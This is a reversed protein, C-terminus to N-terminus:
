HNSFEAVAKERDEHERQALNIDAAVGLADMRAAILSSLAPITSALLAVILRPIWDPIPTKQPTSMVAIGIFICLLYVIFSFVWRRKLFYMRSELRKRLNIADRSTLATSKILDHSGDLTKWFFGDILTFLVGIGTSAAGVFKQDIGPVFRWVWYALLAFGAYTLITIIARFVKM